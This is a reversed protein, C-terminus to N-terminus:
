NVQKGHGAWYPKRLETKLVKSAGSVPMSESRITVGRPCKYGAILGRCHAIVGDATVPKGARPVVIAHAAEGWKEDPVPRSPDVLVCRHSWCNWGGRYRCRHKGFTQAQCLVDRRGDRDLLVRAKRSAADNQEMGFRIKSGDGLYKPGRYRHREGYTSRPCFSM